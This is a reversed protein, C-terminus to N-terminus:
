RSKGKKILRNVRAIIKPRLKIWFKLGRGEFDDFFEKEFKGKNHLIVQKSAINDKNCSVCVESMGSEECKKLLLKLLYTGYGKNRENPRIAYGINGVNLYDKHYNLIDSDEISGFGIIYDPQEDNILYYSHDGYIKLCRFYEDAGDKVRRLAYSNLERKDDFADYYEKVLQYNVNHADILRLM